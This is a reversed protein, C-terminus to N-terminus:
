VGESEAPRAPRERRAKREALEARESALEAWAALSEYSVCDGPDHKRTGAALVRLTRIKAVVVGTEVRCVTADTTKAIRAFARQSLEHRERWDVLPHRM